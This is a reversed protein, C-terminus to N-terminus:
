SAVGTVSAMVTARLKPLVPEMVSEVLPRGVPRVALKVCGPVPVDPATMNVVEVTGAAAPEYGMVRVADSPLVLVDVVIVTVTPTTRVTVLAVSVVMPREPWRCCNMLM